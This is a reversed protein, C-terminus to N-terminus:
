FSAASSRVDIYEFDFAEYEICDRRGPLKFLVILVPISPDSLRNEVVEGERIFANRDDSLAVPTGRAFRQARQIRGQAKDSLNFLQAAPLPQVSSLQM